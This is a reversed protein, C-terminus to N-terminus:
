FLATPTLFTNHTLLEPQQPLSNSTPCGESYDHYPCSQASETVGAGLPLGEFGAISIQVYPGMTSSQTELYYHPNM